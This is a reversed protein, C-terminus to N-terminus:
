VGCCLLSSDKDWRKSRSRLPDSRSGGVKGWEDRDVCHTKKREGDKAAPPVVLRSHAPWCSLPWTLVSLESDVPECPRANMM